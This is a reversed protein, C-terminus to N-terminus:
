LRIKSTRFERMQFKNKPFQFKNAQRGICDPLINSIQLKTNGAFRRNMKQRGQRSKKNAPPCRNEWRHIPLSNEAMGTPIEGCGIRFPCDVIARANM